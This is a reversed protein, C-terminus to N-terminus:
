YLINESFVNLLSENLLSEYEYTENIAAINCVLIAYLFASKRQKQATLTQCYYFLFRMYATLHYRMAFRDILDPLSLIQRYDKNVYLSHCYLYSTSTFINARMQIDLPTKKQYELLQLFYFSSLYSENSISYLYGIYNLIELEQRTLRYSLLDYINFSPLSLRLAEMLMPIAESTPKLLAKYTLCKQRGLLNRAEILSEMNEIHRLISKQQKSSLIQMIESKLDYFSAERENGWFTFIQESIGLRQFLAETLTIDPQLANSEIKSLKSKSCLGYCLTQQSLGQETRFDRIINGIMYVSTKDMNDINSLFPLSPDFAENPFKKLPIKSLKLMQDSIPFASEHQIYNLCVSAYCSEVHQATYYVSKILSDAEKILGCHLASLGALFTLEFLPANEMDEIMKHRNWDALRFANEYKSISLLYKVRVIAAEAQLRSREALTFVNHPLCNELRHVLQICHDGNGIYLAEQALAIIIDLENRSLLGDFPTSPDFHPRTIRLASLLIDYLKQHSCQYSRFQLRCYLFLWEQYTLHNDAWCLKKIKQLEEWAPKLQWADLHTRIYKLCLYCEFDTRDSYVPFRTHPFGARNTLAYFTTCGANSSGCEIRSLAQLSCIGDAMKTQTMGCSIRANRILQNASRVAM